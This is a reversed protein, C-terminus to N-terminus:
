KDEAFVESVPVGIDAAIVDLLTAVSIDRGSFTVFHNKHGICRIPFHEVGYEELKKSFFAAVEGPTANLLLIKPFTVNGFKWTSPSRTQFSSDFRRLEAPTGVVAVGQYYKVSVALQNCALQLIEKASRDEGVLLVPKRDDPVSLSYICAPIIKGDADKLEAFLKMTEWWGEKKGLLDPVTRDPWDIHPGSESDSSAVPSDQSRAPMGLTAFVLALWLLLRSLRIPSFPYPAMRVM